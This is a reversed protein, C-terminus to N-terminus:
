HTQAWNTCYSGDKNMFKSEGALPINLNLLKGAQEIAECQVEGIYQLFSFPAETQWEDHVDNVERFPIEESILRNYWIWNAIKMITSEGNQLYGALVKHPSPIKVYRGDLGTFYGREGDTKLREEKLIKWGPYFELIRRIAEDAEALSCQLIEAVKNRGAGLFLAYILTKASERSNCIPHMISMNLSHIDTKDEKKGSVISFNLKEDNVYHAFVRLQIGAADTGVLGWGPTAQWMARMEYGYPQPQGKRNILAPINAKNPASHAKRHTWSGIGSMEGHIRAEGLGKPAEVAAQLWEKLDGIRSAILIAEALKRAAEPANPPLTALNDEDVKWGYERYYELAETDKDREAKIHGKTKNIPKWGAMNLREVIQKPSAPNFPQWEIVSFVSGDSLVSLDNNHVYRSLRSPLAGSKTKKVELTKVFRPLPSFINSFTNYLISYKEELSCLLNNAETVNFCFGNNVVIGCLYESRTELQISPKWRPSDLYQSFYKLLKYNIETDSICRDELEQSWQSFDNWSSKQVGGLREAWAELSHGGDRNYDLLRSIVLTDDVDDPHIALGLFHRLVGSDFRIFNHGCWRTVKSLYEKAPAPDEHVNRFVRLLEGEYSRVVLVWLKDYGRLSNTETDIIVRILKRRKTSKM